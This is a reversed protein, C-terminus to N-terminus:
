FLPRKAPIGVRRPYRDPTSEVKRVVQFGFRDDFRMPSASELGVEALGEVPWRSAGVGDAPPESIVMLGGPALFPAGCEAAVAPSGFSRSTVLDLQGRYRASRAVEEARGRVVEIGGPGDWGATEMSLFETRRQNADVLIVHSEPWYSLLVLGPVGGGTGLDLVTRPPQVLASEAAFVFGLSHDIQESVPMTGLFGFEASRELIAAVAPSVRNRMEAITLGTGGSPSV